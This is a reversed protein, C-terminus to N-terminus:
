REPAALAVRETASVRRFGRRFSAAISEVHSTQFSSLRAHCTSMRKTARSIADDRHGDRDRSVVSAAIGCARRSACM